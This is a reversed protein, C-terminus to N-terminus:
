LVGDWKLLDQLHSSEVAPLWLPSIKQCSFSNSLSASAFDVCNVMKISKKCIDFHLSQWSSQSYAIYKKFDSFYEKQHYQLFVWVMLDLFPRWSEMMDYVLAHSQYRDIHHVGHVPNLGHAVLSRHIMAQLVTYGYNLMINIQHDDDQRRTLTPEGLKGFFVRFYQRAAASENLLKKRSEERVYEADTGILELVTAQNEIKQRLIKQWLADKLKKALVQRELIQPNITELIPMTMGCPVFRDDCHIIGVKHELLASLVKSSFITGQAALVVCKIDELPIQQQTKGDKKCQLFGRYKKLHIDPTLIHLVHWSM